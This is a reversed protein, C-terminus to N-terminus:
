YAARRKALEAQLDKYIAAPDGGAKKVQTEWETKLPEAAKRWEALQAPTITYIEKGAQTGRGHRQAPALGQEMGFDFSDKAADPVV